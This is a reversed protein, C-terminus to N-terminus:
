RVPRGTPKQCPTQFTCQVVPQDTMFVKEPNAKVVKCGRGLSPGYVETVKKMAIPLVTKAPDQDYSWGDAGAWITVYFSRQLNCGSPEATYGLFGRGTGAFAETFKVHLDKDKELAAACCGGEAAPKAPAPRVQSGQVPRAASADNALGSGIVVGLIWGCQLLSRFM